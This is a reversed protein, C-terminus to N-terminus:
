IHILSLNLPINNADIGTLDSLMKIISPVDHGLLDLKLITDEVSKYTFHTTIVGSSPDDAPYSIPTFDEVEMNNPVVIIGGPHQGTTRKVGVIGHQLMAIEAPNYTKDIKESYKKIYGYATNEKITGITGARFVHDAGFLEETYKHCRAQYEGAFNM